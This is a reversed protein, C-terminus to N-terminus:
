DFKKSKNFNFIYNFNIKLNITQINLRIQEWENGIQGILYNMCDNSICMSSMSMSPTSKEVTSKSPTLKALTNFLLYKRYSLLSKRKKGEVDM